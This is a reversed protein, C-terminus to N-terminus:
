GSRSTRKRRQPSTSRSGSGGAVNAAVCVTQSQDRPEARAAVPLASSASPWYLDKTAASRAVGASADNPSLLTLSTSRMASSTRAARMAAARPSWALAISSSLDATAASSASEYSSGGAQNRGVRSD